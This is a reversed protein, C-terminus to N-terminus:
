YEILILHKDYVLPLLKYNCLNSQLAAHFTSHVNERQLSKSCDVNVCSQINLLEIIQLASSMYLYTPVNIFIVFASVKILNLISKQVKRPIFPMKFSLFTHIIILITDIFQM